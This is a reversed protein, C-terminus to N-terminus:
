NPQAIKGSMSGIFIIPFISEMIFLEQRLTKFDIEDM